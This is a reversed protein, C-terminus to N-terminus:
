WWSQKDESGTILNSIQKAFWDTFNFEEEFAELWLWAGNPNSELFWEQGSPDVIFDSAAFDIGLQKMLRDLRASTESSLHTSWYECETATARWDIRNPDLDNSRIAVVHHSGRFSTVRLEYDRKILGQFQVPTVVIQAVNCMDDFTIKHTYAFTRGRESMETTLLPRSLSKAVVDRGQMWEMSIDPSNSVLTQPMKLGSKAAFLYQRIKNLALRTEWFGNIRHVPHVASLLGEITQEIEGLAFGIYDSHLHGVGPKGLRRFWLLQPHSVNWIEGFCDRVLVEVSQGRIDVSIENNMPYQDIDLRCVQIGDGLCRLVADIHPDISTGVIFLEAKRCKM